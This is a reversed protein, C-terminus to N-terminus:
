VHNENKIGRSFVKKRSFCHPLMESVPRPAFATEQAAAAPDIDADQTMGAIVQWTLPPTKMCMHMLGAAVLALWVPIHVFPKNERGMSILCLRAFDKISIVESGSFNYVKACARENHHLSALGNGLDVAYVPRKRADGSGIFPLIPFRKLYRVFMGFEGGQQEDYVLTPRVITWNMGAHKVIDECRRKSRSYATTCPYVVSASSVYVFHPVHHARAENCVNRTGEVNIREFDSHGSAVIVAALHYVTDVGRCLGTISKSEAIDGHWVEVRDDNEYVKEGPLVLMRIRVGGALLQAVLNRGIVGSGGTICVM